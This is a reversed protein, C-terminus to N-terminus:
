AHLRLAPTCGITSTAASGPIGRLSRLAALALTYYGEPYCSRDLSALHIARGRNANLYKLWWAPDYNYLHEIPDINTITLAYAVLAGAASGRGPGVRIGM